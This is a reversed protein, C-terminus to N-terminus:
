EVLSGRRASGTEKKGGERGGMVGGEDDGERGRGREEYGSSGEVGGRDVGAEGELGGEGEEGTSTGKSRSSEAGFVGVERRGELEM